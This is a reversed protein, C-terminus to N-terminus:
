DNIYKQRNCYNYYCWCIMHELESKNLDINKYDKTLEKIKDYKYENFLKPLESMLSYLKSNELAPRPPYCKIQHYTNNLIQQKIQNKLHEM